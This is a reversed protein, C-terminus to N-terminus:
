EQKLLDIPQGAGEKLTLDMEEYTWKGAKKTAKVYLTGGARPGSLPITLNATGDNNELSISGNIIMGEKVPEGLAEIVQANQKVKSVTERYPTSNKIGNMTVFFLSASLLILVLILVCCGCGIGKLWKM